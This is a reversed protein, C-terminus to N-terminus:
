ADYGFGDVGQGEPVDGALAQGEVAAVKGIMQFCFNGSVFEGYPRGIVPSVKQFYLHVSLIVARQNVRRILNFDGDTRALM